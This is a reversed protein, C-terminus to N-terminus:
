GSLALGGSSSPDALFANGQGILGAALLGAGLFFALFTDRDSSTGVWTSFIRSSRALSFSSCALAAALASSIARRPRLFYVEGASCPKEAVAPSPLPAAPPCPCLPTRPHCRHAQSPSHVRCRTRGTGMAGAAAVPPSPLVVPSSVSPNAKVPVLALACSPGLVPYWLSKQARSREGSVWRQSTELPVKDLWAPKGTHRRERPPQLM